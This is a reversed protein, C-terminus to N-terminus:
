KRVYTEPEKRSTKKRLTGAMGILPIILVLCLLVLYPSINQLAPLLRRQGPLSARWDMELKSLSGGFTRAAGSECDLGDAYAAALELLKSSGHTDHLYVIFSRAEAYALFAQGTDTPFPGCLDTLPILNGAAVAGALARDYDTNPYVEAFTAMGERLWAPLNSYGPGTQRYLMVHMLEHPIRQEMAMNQGASPEVALMVVGLAPDAHGAVWLEADRALTQRLDETNAYIFFEVPRTLDPSMIRGISDLGAQAAELAAQGFSADGAYWNVRWPGSERAQWNFRDDTYRMFFFTSQATSGDSFTFRYSWRVNTFPRLAHQRTDFQFETRGDPQVTVPETWTLGQLEDTITITSSQLPASVKVTAVFTIAEGFRVSAQVNELAVGAQAHASHVPISALILTLCSTLPILFSTFSSTRM